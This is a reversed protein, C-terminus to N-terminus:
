KGAKAREKLLKKYAKPDAAELKADALGVWDVVEFKLGAKEVEPGILSVPGRITTTTAAVCPKLADQLDAKTLEANGKAMQDFWDWGQDTRALHVLADALQQISQHNLSHTLARRNMFMHMRDEDIDGDAIAALTDEIAKVVKGADAPRSTANVDMWSIGGVDAELNIHTPFDPAVEAVAAAIREGVLDKLVNLTAVDKGTEWTKPACRLRTIGVPMPVEFGYVDGDVPAGPKAVLELPTTKAGDEPKWGGFQKEATAIAADADLMGIMVLTTNAPQYKDNLYRRMDSAGMEKFSEVDEWSMVWALPHEPAIHDWETRSLAWYNPDAWRDKTWGKNDRVWDSKWETTPRREENTNRLLWLIADLNGAPGHLSEYSVQFSQRVAEYSNILIPEEAPEPSWLTRFQNRDTFTDMGLPGTARGGGYIMNAQVLPAHGHPIAVVTMGNSLTKEKLGSLDPRGFLAELAEPDSEPSGTPITEGFFFASGHYANSQAGGGGGGDSFPEIVAMVARDRVLYKYAYEGIAEPDSHVIEDLQDGHYSIRGTFHAHQATVRGRGSWLDAVNDLSHLVDTMAYRMGNQGEAKLQAAMEPNWLEAVQDVIGSAVRSRNSEFTAQAACVLLTAELQPVPFCNVQPRGNGLAVVSPDNYFHNEMNNKLTKSAIRTLSETERYSGPVAWAVVVTPTRVPGELEVLAKHNEPDPLDRAKEELRPGRTPLLDLMEGDAGPKLPWTQVHSPDDPDTGEPKLWDKMDEDTLDEHFLSPEFAKFLATTADDIGFNGVVMITTHEPAYRDKTFAKVDDISIGDVKEGAGLKHYPHGDPFLRGMLAPQAPQWEGAFRYRFEQGMLGKIRAFEEDSIESVSQTLRRSELAMLKTLNSSPGLTTFSVVDADTTANYEAGLQYLMDRVKIGGFESEFWLHEALHAVGGKGDPESSSGASMITTIAVMPAAKDVQLIVRLGTEFNLDHTEYSYGPVDAAMTPMDPRTGAAEAPTFLLTALLPLLSTM